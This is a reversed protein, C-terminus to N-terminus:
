YIQEIEYAQGNFDFRATKSLGKLKTGIPSLPSVAFYVAADIEIKGGSISIYFNGKNTIVLSGLSATLSKQNPNIKNLMKKLEMAEFLQKSNKEQELQMMARGTEHKDGSSSKTEDNGSEGAADLASQIRNIREDAYEICKQYLLSKLKQNEINM